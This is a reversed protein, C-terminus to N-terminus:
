LSDAYNQAKRAADGLAAVAAQVQRDAMQLAEVIERDTRRSTGGIAAEVEASTRSFKGRFTSLNGATTKSSEAIAQLSARLENLKSSM